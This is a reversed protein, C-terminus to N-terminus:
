KTLFLGVGGGRLLKDKLKVRVPDIQESFAAKVKQEILTWNEPKAEWLTLTAELLKKQLSNFLLVEESKEGYFLSLRIELEGSLLKNKLERCIQNYEEQDLLVKGSSYKGETHAQLDQLQFYINEVWSLAVVAIEARLKIKQAWVEYFIALLTAILAGFIGSLLNDMFLEQLAIKVSM